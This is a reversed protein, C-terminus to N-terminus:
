RCGQAHYHLRIALSFPVPANGEMMKQQPHTPHTHLPVHPSAAISFHVKFHVKFLGRFVVDLLLLFWTQRDVSTKKEM